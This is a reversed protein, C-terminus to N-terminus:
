GGAGLRLARWVRGAWAPLREEVRRQYESLIASCNRRMFLPTRRSIGATAIANAQAGTEWPPVAMVGSSATAGASVRGGSKGAVARGGADIGACHSPTGIAFSEASVLLASVAGGIWCFGDRVASCCCLTM